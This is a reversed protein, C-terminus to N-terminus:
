KGLDFLYRLLDRRQAETMWGTLGDPMLTGTDSRDKIKDKSVTDTAATGPTRLTLSKADENAKYGSFVKGDHTTITTLFFGEKIQRKPWLVSETILEPTMGRGIATLDPGTIGGTDGVKHCGICASQAAHFIEGGRKADGTANVEAILKAVFEASYDPVVSANEPLGAAKRLVTMLEADSRGATALAKLLTFAMDAPPPRKSLAAALQEPGAQVALVDTLLSTSTDPGFAEAFLGAAAAAGRTADLRILQGAAAAAVARRQDQALKELDPLADLGKVEAWARVANMALPEDTGTTMPLLKAAIDPYGWAAALRCILPQFTPSGEEAKEAFWKELLARMDGAPKVARDRAAALLGEAVSHRMPGAGAAFAVDDPGGAGILLVRLNGRNEEAVKDGELLKRLTPGMQLGGDTQLVFALHATNGEFSLHGEELPKSWYPKLARVTNALAYDIFRDRPHDLVGLALELATASKFYGAAIAAELRVRPHPDNVANALLKIFYEEEDPSESHDQGSAHLSWLRVAFARLRADEHNLCRRLLAVSLSGRGTQVSLIEYLLASTADPQLAAESTLQASDDRAILLRRAQDRVWREPSRLQDVLQSTDMKELEPREVLARDKASVRWIRGHIKDRNPDRYSAQYHGIVPNYWDCIYLAGDPGTQVGLPRFANSSSTLLPGLDETKFGSGDEVLKYLLLQNAFYVPKCLVGQLDPPLHTSNIYELCMGKVPSVALAGINYYPPPNPWTGLGPTTYFGPTNDAACHFVQGWDNFTVGWCNAGAAANGFFGQLKWTRPDFRWIGARDFQVIGHPTEIRSFIHLGQSFWLCGDPGWRLSNIMQHSDGTGFGSLIVRRGWAKGTGSLSYHVLQTSECVYVGHQIFDIGMPMTLGEAVKDFKDARGDGDTDECVLIYDGHPEGPVLQPYSPSCAAWLRGKHDWRMSLPKVLGDAESAFLNIEFGDRVKFTHAEEEPLIHKKLPLAVPNAPDAPPLVVSRRGANPEKPNYGLAALHIREDAERLLTKYKELEKAMPPHAGIGKGFPQETRDSYAFAWNMTKWCDHWLRNKARVGALAPTYDNFDDSVEQVPLGLATTLMALYANRIAQDSIHVGNDTRSYSNGTEYAHELAPWDLVIAGRELALAKMIAGLHLLRENKPTNDPPLGKLFDPGGQHDFQMPTIVVLRPTVAKFEDLLKACAKEFAADDRAEDLAEMQGFWLFVCTANVADLQEKWSGFNIDRWQEYVTDGDWAMNRFHPKQEKAALALSAEFWGHEVLRVMNTGGTFVIVEGPRIEFKGDKFPERPPAPQPDAFRATPGKPAAPDSHDTQDKLEEIVIDKYWVQSKADGHIQVAIIGTRPIDKETETFDVTQVGNLWIQIRPGEARIRYTNWEGLPKRAKEVVDKAPQALMKNRRSEDYLAGDYGAGLDAQYGSVEHHNPIRKTRFQVGGNVFGETGQLKWKLTLDFDGFEKKTCLFENRPQNKDVSGATFAGEEIRWTTTTDGEWGNFSGDALSYPEGAFVTLTSLVLLLSLLRM